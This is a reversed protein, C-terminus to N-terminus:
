RKSHKVALAVAALLVEPECPSVVIRRVGPVGNLFSGLQYENLATLMVVPVVATSRQFALRRVFDIVANAPELIRYVIAAPLREAVAKLALEGDSAASVDYGEATLLASTSEQSGPVDDVLLVM